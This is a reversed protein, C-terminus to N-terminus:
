IRLTVTFFGFVLKQRRFRTSASSFHQDLFGVLQRIYYVLLRFFDFLASILDFLYNLGFGEWGACFSPVTVGRAVLVGVLHRYLGLGVKFLFIETINNIRQQQQQRVLEIYSYQVTQTSYEWV